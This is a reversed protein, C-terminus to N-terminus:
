ECENLPIGHRAYRQDVTETSGDATFLLEESQPLLDVGVHPGLRGIQTVRQVTRERRVGREAEDVDRLAELSSKSAACSSPKRASTV